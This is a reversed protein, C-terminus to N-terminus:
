WPNPDLSLVICVCACVSSVLSNLLAVHHQIEVPIVDCAHVALFVPCPVIFFEQVSSHSCFPGALSLSHTHTHASKTRTHTHTYLGVQNRTKLKESISSFLFKEQRRRIPFKWGRHFYQLALFTVLRLIVQSHTGRALFHKKKRVFLVQSRPCADACSCVSTPHITRGTSRAEMTQLSVFVVGSCPQYSVIWM